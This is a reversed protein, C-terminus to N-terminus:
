LNFRSGEEKKVYNYFDCATCNRIMAAFTGEAKGGCLTGAVKWCYRGAREGENKGNHCENMAAPCIGKESTLMGGPQRECKKYEWCNMKM